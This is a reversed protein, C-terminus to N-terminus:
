RIVKQKKLWGVFDEAQKCLLKRSDERGRAIRENLETRWDFDEGHKSPVFRRSVSTVPDYFVGFFLRDKSQKEVAEAVLKAVDVFRYGQVSSGSAPGGLVFYDKESVFEVAIKKDPDMGDLELPKAQGPVEVVSEKFDSRGDGKKVIKYDVIRPPIRVEKLTSGGKLRIGHKALEEGIIQMGEEESLFVPPSIVICGTAGRGEGHEFIPAVITGKKKGAASACEGGFVTLLVFSAAGALVERRTPYAPERVDRVPKTEM